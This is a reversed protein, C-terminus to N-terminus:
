FTYEFGVTYSHDYLSRFEADKSGFNIRGVFYLRTHKGVDLSVVPTLRSSHDDFNYTYRLLLNIRDLIHIQQYQFMLYHRRFFTVEPNITGDLVDPSLNVPGAVFFSALQSRQLVLRDAQEDKLGESNYIYELTLTPGAELTYSGGVLLLTEIGTDTYKGVGPSAPLDLAPSGLREVGSLRYLPNIGQFVSMEGHVALADSVSWGGFAGVQVRDGERKSPIVSFYKRDGTFDLKLAYTPEFGFPFNVRGENVNAIFSLTWTPNMIWILRGFEMGPAESLPNTKLNAKYFPNSPSFLYSPGWMVVERGFSAYLDRTIGLSALAENIFWDDKTHWGGEFSREEKWKYSTLAVRPKLSLWIRRYNLFFDPRLEGNLSYRRGELFINNVRLLNGAGVVRWACDFGEGIERAFEKYASLTNSTGEYDQRAFFTSPFILLGFLMVGHGIWRLHRNLKM